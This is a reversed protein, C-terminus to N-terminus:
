YDTPSQFKYGGDAPDDVEYGEVMSFLRCNDGIAQNLFTFAVCRLNGDCRARCTTLKSVRAYSMIDGRFRKHHVAQVQAQATSVDPLVNPKKVGITSHPDLVSTAVADKLFCKSSWRDYSFAVCAGTQDCRSACGDFDLGTLGVGGSPVSIDHGYIDRNHRTVFKDSSISQGYGQDADGNNLNADVSTQAPLSETAAIQPNASDQFTVQLGTQGCTICCSACSNAGNFGAGWYTGAPNDRYWAGYCVKENFKCNLSQVRSDNPEFNYGQNLGPWALGPRTQSYFATVVTKGTLNKVNFSVAHEPCSTWYARKEEYTGSYMTCGFEIQEQRDAIPDVSTKGCYAHLLLAINAKRMPNDAASEGGPEAKEDLAENQLQNIVRTADPSNCAPM